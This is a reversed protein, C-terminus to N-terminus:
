PVSAWFAAMDRAYLTEKKQLLESLAELRCRDQELLHITRKDQERLWKSARGTAERFAAEGVVGLADRLGELSLPGWAENMGWQGVVRIALSTARRIDESAGTDASDKGLLLEVAARGALLIQVRHEIDGLTWSAKETRPAREVFGLADGRPLITVEGIEEGPFLIHQVLAHGAEHIATARRVTEDLPTRESALGHRIVTAARDFDGQGV